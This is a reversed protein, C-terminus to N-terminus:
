DIKTVLVTIDNSAPASNFTITVRAATTRVVEAYVTDFTSSDFMQVM